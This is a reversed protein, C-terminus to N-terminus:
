EALHCARSAAWSEDKLEVLSLVLYVVKLCVWCAAWRQDLCEATRWVLHVVM